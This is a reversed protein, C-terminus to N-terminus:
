LNTIHTKLFDGSRLKAGIEQVNNIIKIFDQDSIHAIASDIDKLSDVTIGIRHERVWEALSSQSWVIVPIGAALYLSTKHSSNYRLYEGYDGTCSGISDGDWVLGWGGTINGTQEPRFYGSYEINSTNALNLSDDHIGYLKFHTSFSQSENVLEKLFQSKSLNGAFLVYNKLALTTETDQMPDSSYYDFLWLIRMPTTCGLARLQDAMATTHVIILDANNLKRIEKSTKNFRISQVDHVVFIVKAERKMCKKALSQMYHRYFDQIVVIDGFRIQRVFKKVQREALYESFFPYHHYRRGEKLAYKYNIINHQEYGFDTFTHLVDQRAKSQANVQAELGLKVIENIFFRRQSRDNIHPKEEATKQGTLRFYKDLVMLSILDERTKNQFQAVWEHANRIILEAENPHAEYYEIKEILDHYDDAIEIYHYNPILKGEMYWTECTPRPMVAISNSSMVWKLNSAVDNGELAMIYRYKLHEYLSMHEYTTDSTSVIDCWPHHNWQQIFQIRRPKGSTNGRFIIKCEKEEWSFPDNVWTFHRVKDLNILINNRNEGNPLLPRSKTIEPVPFLYNVDGPNYAWRLHSPFFRLYENADYFYTSNVYDHVYSERKQYTFNKLCPADDPLLISDQFKCYYDVRQQIYKQEEIPLRYFSEVKKQFKHRLWWAPRIERLFSKFFFIMHSNKRTHNFFFNWYRQINEKIKM